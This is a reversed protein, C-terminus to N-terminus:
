ADDEWSGLLEWEEAIKDGGFRSICLDMCHQPKGTAPDTRHITCRIVMKDGDVLHDELTVKLNPNETYFGPLLTKLGALGPPLDPVAPNHYTYDSTFFGDAGQVLANVNGANILAHWNTINERAAQKTIMNEEGSSLRAACKASRKVKTNIAYVWLKFICAPLLCFDDIKSLQTFPHSFVAGEGL